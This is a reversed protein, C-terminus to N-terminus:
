MVKVSTQPGHIIEPHHHGRVRGNLRDHVKQGIQHGERSLAPRRVEIQDVQIGLPGGSDAAGGGHNRALRTLGVQV